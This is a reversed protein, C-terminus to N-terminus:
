WFCDLYISIGAQVLSPCPSSVKTIPLATYSHNQAVWECKSKLPQYLQLVEEVSSCVPPRRSYVHIKFDALGPNLDGTQRSRVRLHSTWDLPFATAISSKADTAERACAVWMPEKPIWMNLLYTLQYRQWKQKLAAQWSSLLSSGKLKFSVSCNFERRPSDLGPAQWHMLSSCNHIRRGRPPVMSCEATWRLSINYKLSGRTCQMSHM